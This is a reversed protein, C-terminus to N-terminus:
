PQRDLLYVNRQATPMIILEHVCVHAPANVVYAVADAVDEPTLPTTGAYTKAARETDGHFRVESFETEVLGPSVSSVRIPTGLLDANMAETLARVAFKTANYVNGAPYVQRGAISGLNVVHGRGRDLMQPLIARSVFLLGKVNTDIMRDWDELRGEQLKDLGSALGANNVLVDPVLGRALLDDALRAVAARDRVDLAFVHIEVGHAQTLKAQLAELRELRRATLVLRAGDAAFREACARGIGASAGTIMVLKDKIRNM